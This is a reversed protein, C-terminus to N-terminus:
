RMGFWIRSEGFMAVVLVLGAISLLIGLKLSEPEFILEVKHKGAPVEVAQFAYNARLLEVKKGDIYAKWSPYWAESIVLYCQKSADSEVDIKGPDSYIVRASGEFSSDDFAESGSQGVLLLEHVPNFEGSNIYQIVEDYSGLFLPKEVLFARPMYGENVWWVCKPRKEETVAVGLFYKVNLFDLLPSELSSIQSIKGVRRRLMANEVAIISSDIAGLFEIYHSLNLADYGHIDDIGYVTAINAPIVDAKFKAIRWQSRDQLLGEVFESRPVIQDAPLTVKFKNARPLLDIMLLLICLTLFAVKSVKGFRRAIVLVASLIAFIAFIAVRRLLYDRTSWIQAQDYINAIGSLIRDIGHNALWASLAITFGIFCLGIIYIRRTNHNIVDDFGFGALMSMSFAYLFILRDVRSFKFGPVVDYAFRLLPSKWVLLLTIGAIILFPLRKRSPHLISIVALLLPLIGVYGVTSVFNSSFGADARAQHLYKALDGLDCPNGLIDPIFYKLFVLGKHASSAIIWYPLSKRFSFTSLEYSPVLQFCALLFGIGISIALFQASRTARKLSQQTALSLVLVYILLALMNYIIIQPFGSLLTLFLGISLWAIKKRDPKEVLNTSLLLILPLWSASSVMTPQGYRTSITESFAFCISAIVSAPISLAFRRALLYTFLAALVVHIYIFFDMQTPPDFAYLLINVPYFVATQFNALFPTGCFQHHNWYPIKGQRIWETAFVRRPYYSLICDSSMSSTELNGHDLDELWPYTNKLSFTILTQDTFLERWFFITVLIM